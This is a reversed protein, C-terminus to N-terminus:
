GLARQALAKQSVANPSPGMTYYSFGSARTGPYAPSSAKLTTLLHWDTM